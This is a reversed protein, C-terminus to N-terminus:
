IALRRIFSQLFMIIFILVMPSLDFGGVPPIIRRVQALLPETLRYTFDGVIQVFRNYRNVVDFAVLWSLIAAVILIWVYLGLIAHIVELASALLSSTVNM